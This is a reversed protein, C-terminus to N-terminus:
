ILSGLWLGAVGVLWTTLLIALSVAIFGVIRRIIRYIM